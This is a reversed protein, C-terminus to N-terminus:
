HCLSRCNQVGTRLHLGEVLLDIYGWIELRTIQAQGVM